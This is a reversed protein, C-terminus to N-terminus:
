RTFFLRVSILMLFVAYFRKLTLTDLRLSLKAGLWAGIMAFAALLFATKLDVMGAQGHKMAAAFATPIVAALSTGVALHADMGLMMVMLPVFVAGGGVGFLGSSIGGLIGILALIGIHM